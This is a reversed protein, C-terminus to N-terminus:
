CGPPHGNQRLNIAAFFEQRTQLNDRFTGLLRSTVMNMGSTHAGRATICAHVAHIAVATGRPKLVRDIADAIEATLREQIQLRQSFVRVLRVLKSIGIVRTNPLYAIHVRGSIPAMHHECHSQFSVDRLLVIEDYGAVEEFCRALLQTPDNEYGAFWEQYARLVRKPTDLLGERKPDDGAWRILTRVAEEAEMWSPRDLCAPDPASRDILSVDV